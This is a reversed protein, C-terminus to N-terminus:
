RLVGYAYPVKFVSEGYPNIGSKTDHINAAHVSVAFLNRMTDVVIHRKRGKVKKGGDFGRGASACVTKVSQSDIIGYTHEPKRGTDRPNQRCPYGDGGGVQRIGGCAQLVVM